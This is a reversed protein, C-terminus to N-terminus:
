LAGFLVEQRLRKVAIECYHEEIEIGIAKRGLDKAARLTTGSGSFPDLVTQGESSWSLIHDRALDEPFIAPHEFIYREKASKMFGPSYRWINPRVSFEPTVHTGSGHQARMTGDPQRGSSAISKKNGAQTNSRDRLLNVTTPAGRSLVFMYEFVPYYRTTEPFAIGAKEYIMTDHLRFGVQNKFYLAQAFSTGSESGDVTQDGVVWVVVGGPKTANWLGLATAEFDWTSGGYTRLGDYPPSTVTLDVSGLQPLIERCDGHYITV